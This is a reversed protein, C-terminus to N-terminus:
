TQGVFFIKHIVVISLLSLNLLLIGFRLKKPHWQCLLHRKSYQWSAVDKLLGLVNCLLLVSLHKQM